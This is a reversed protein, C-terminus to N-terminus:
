KWEHTQAATIAAEGLGKLDIAAECERLTDVDARLEPHKPVFFSCCDEYPLSSIDYTGIMRSIATIEKKDLGILPSFVHLPADQYTADLNEYTQSAVQSLCDGTVLFRARNRKAVVGALRLMVRRYVLMRLESRVHKIIEQQLADFPVVVLRTRRQYRSLQKALQVVKDEVSQTMQNQNQFHVLIATCGRKMMMYAAVPSDLGGSLLVAVKQSPNTPLGGVGAVRRVSLYAHEKHIEVKITVDPDTMRARREPKAEIVAAGLRQNVELSRFPLTKNRRRTLIKFTDFEIAAALEVATSTMVEISSSVKVAPSFYAVGPTSGLIAEVEQADTASTIELTLQGSERRFSAVDESIKRQINTMLLQEFQRRNGSKLAIEDYHVVFLQPKLM